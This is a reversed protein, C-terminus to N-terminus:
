LVFDSSNNSFLVSLTESIGLTIDESAILDNLMSTTEGGEVLTLGEAVDGLTNIQIRVSSGETHASTDSGEIERSHAGEPHEGKGDGETVGVDHLRRLLNGSGHLDEEVEELLGSDGIANHVNDLAAFVSHSVDACV